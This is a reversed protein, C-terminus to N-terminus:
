KQISTYMSPWYFHCSVCLYTKHCGLHGAWPLTHAFHMVLVQCTAPVVVVVVVHRRHNDEVIYLVDKDVIFVQAFVTKLPAEERQLVSINEPM